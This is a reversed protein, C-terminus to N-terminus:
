HILQINTLEADMIKNIQEQTNYTYPISVLKMQHQIAYSRKLKDHLQQRAFKEDGGFYEIAEYHQKGNYEILLPVLQEDRQKPIYFDYSLKNTDRLNEFTKQTEYRIEPHMKLYKLIMTEGSYALNAEYQPCNSNTCKLRQYNENTPTPLFETALMPTSVLENCYNCKIIPAQNVDTYQVIDFDNRYVWHLKANFRAFRLSDANTRQEMECTECLEDPYTDTIYTILQNVNFSMIEQHVNCQVTVTNAFPNFEIVSYNDCGYLENLLEQVDYDTQLIGDIVIQKGTKNFKYYKM